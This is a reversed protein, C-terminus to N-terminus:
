QGFSQALALLDAVDVCGDNNLDCRVDYAADGQCKGWSAALYLVDTVNVHGDGNVDGALKAAVTVTVDQTVMKQSNIVSLTFVYTGEVSLGTM